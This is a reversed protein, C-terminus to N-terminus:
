VNLPTDMPTYSRAKLEFIGTPTNQALIKALHQTVLTWHAETFHPASAQILSDLTTAGFTALTENGVVCSASLPSVDLMPTLSPTRNNICLALLDLIDKLLFNIEDFFQGFLAVVGHLAKFCTTMLWDQLEASPSADILPINDFIKILAGRFLLEWLSM